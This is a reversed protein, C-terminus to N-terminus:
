PRRPESEVLRALQEPDIQSAACIGFLTLAGAVDWYSIQDPECAGQGRPAAVIALLVVVIAMAFFLTSTTPLVLDDPLATAGGAMAGLGSAVTAAFTLEPGCPRFRARHLARKAPHTTPM